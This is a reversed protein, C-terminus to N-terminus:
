GNNEIITNEIADSLQIGLGNGAIYNESFANGSSGYLFCIGSGTNLTINNGVIKWEQAGNVSIGNGQNNSIQNQSVLNVKLSDITYVSFGDKVNAEIRNDSIDNDRSGGDLYIGYM